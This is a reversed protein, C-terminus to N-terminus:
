ELLVDGASEADLEPDVFFFSFSFHLFLPFLSLDEGPGFKDISYYQPSTNNM